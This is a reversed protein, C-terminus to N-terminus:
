RPQGRSTPHHIRYHEAAAQYRALVRAKDAKPTAIGSKSKKTFVDLVYVVSGFAVTYVARYTNGDHDDSLKMIERPLGEGFPRAGLPHDGYQVDLLARGFVDKVDEPLARADKLSSGIWELSRLTQRSSVHVHYCFQSRCDLLPADPSRLAQPVTSRSQSRITRPHSVGSRRAAEHRM